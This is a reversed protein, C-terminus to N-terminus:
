LSCLKGKAKLFILLFALIIADWLLMTNENFPELHCGEVPNDDLAVIIWHDQDEQIYIASSQPRLSQSSLLARHRPDKCFLLKNGLKIISRCQSTTKEKNKKTMWTETKCSCTVPLDRRNKWYKAIVKLLSPTTTLQLLYLSLSFFCPRTLTLKWMCM